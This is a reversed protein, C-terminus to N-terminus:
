VLPLACSDQFKGYSQPPFVTQYGVSYLRCSSLLSYDHFHFDISSLVKRPTFILQSFSVIFSMFVHFSPISYGINPVPKLPSFVDVLCFREIFEKM